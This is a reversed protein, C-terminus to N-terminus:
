GTVRRLGWKESEVETGCPLTRCDTRRYPFMHGLGHQLSTVHPGAGRGVIRISHIVDGRMAKRLMALYALDVELERNPRESAPRRIPFRKLVHAAPAAASAGSPNVVPYSITQMAKDSSPVPLPNPVGKTPQSECGICKSSMGRGDTARVSGQGPGIELCLSLVSQSAWHQTM